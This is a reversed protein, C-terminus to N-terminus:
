EYYIRFIIPMFMLVKKQTPDASPSPTLKQQLFMSIGMLVPLVFYPDKVSLDKIWFVFPAGVLEVSNYLVKYFAFFFPMQMLLPLCGGLPNAGSKKFLSMSEQQLRQPDDKFRERIKTLEPQIEQMKKMGKFSKYQLPFMLSRMILTLLIIAIGWNSVHEYFFQMIRLMPVALISWMGFDVSFELSDGLDKLLDYEKKTYIVNFNLKQAPQTLTLYFKGDPSSSFFGPQKGELTTAYLHYNYDIGLWRVKGESNDTDGVELKELDDTLVSFERLMGADNKQPESTLKFRYRITNQSTASVVLKGESNFKGSVNIGNESNKATFSDGSANVIFPLAKFEGNIEFQIQSSGSKGATQEFSYVSKDSKFKSFELFSSVSIESSDRKIIYNQSQTNVEPKKVVQNQQNNLSQTTEPNATTQALEQTANAAVPSKKPGFFYNWGFLIVASLTIALFMRKQDDGMVVGAKTKSNSRKRGQPVSSM